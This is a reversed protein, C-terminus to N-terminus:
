LLSSEVLHKLAAVANQETLAGSVFQSAISDVGKKSEPLASLATRALRVAMLVIKSEIKLKPPKQVKPPKPSRPPKAMQPTEGPSGESTSEPMQSKAKESVTLNVTGQNVAKEKKSVM